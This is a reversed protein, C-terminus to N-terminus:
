TRVEFRGAQTVYRVGKYPKYNENKLNVSDVKIGSLAVTPLKFDVLVAAAGNKAINTKPPLKVNGSCSISKKDQPEIKGVNWNLDKLTPDFNVAGSNTTITHSEIQCPLPISIKVDELAKGMTHRLGLMINVNGGGEHFSLQPRCYIPSMPLNSIRYTMLVFEGDPPVFSISRDQEYKAYRVCPHFSVDEIMQPQKFTMVLDPMGSLKCNCYIKANVECLTSMGNVDIICNMEEVLDFFIENTAYRIGLKRWPVPSIGHGSDQRTVTDTIAKMVNQPPKVLDRLLSLESTIPFGNDIMEDLLQYITVFNQKISHDDIKGVYSAFVDVIRNLLEIVMMPPTETQVVGVFFIGSRLVHTIYHKSTAIVPPTEEPKGAKRVQEYFYEGVSRSVRGRWHKEIIIEGQNNIIFLSHIM